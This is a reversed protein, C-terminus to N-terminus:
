LLKFRSSKDKVKKIMMRRNFEFVYGEPNTEPM